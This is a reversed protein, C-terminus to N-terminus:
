VPRLRSRRGGCRKTRDRRDGGYASLGCVAKRATAGSQRVAIQSRPSRVPRAPHGLGRPADGPPFAARNAIQVRGETNVFTGSKRLYLDSRAPDRRRPARRSRWADGSLDRLRRAPHRDRGCRAPVARRARRRRGDGACRPRGRGPVFGLDLAGVRAAATHLVSFGNWDDTVAGVKQAVKAALAMIAAGDERMLAGQGLIILPREAESLVKAFPHKGSVIEALTDPGAGLYDYDYTLDAKEGIVGIPPPGMRFRKRIRVNVLSAEIRPNSGVVLIADAEEIGEITSNFVYSGRGLAPDLAAGDQRSDLNTVGLSTMLQKLAYIEEVAPLDGVIAGIREPSAADVARAIAGFAEQWSAPRLKGNERVYPKDLRQRRM